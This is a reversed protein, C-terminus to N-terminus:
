RFGRSCHGTRPGGPSQFNHTSIDSDVSNDLLWAKTVCLSHRHHISVTTLAAKTKELDKKLRTLKLGEAKSKAETATLVEEKIKAEAELDVLKRRLDALEKERGSNESRFDSAHQRENRLEDVSLQVQQEMTQFLSHLSLTNICQYLNTACSRCQWNFM